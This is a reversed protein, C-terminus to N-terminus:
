KSVKTAWLTLQTGTKKGDKSKWDAARLQGDVHIWGGSYDDEPIDTTHGHEDPQIRAMVEISIGDGYTDGEVPRSSMKCRMRLFGGRTEEQEFCWLLFNTCIQTQEKQTNGKEPATKKGFAM